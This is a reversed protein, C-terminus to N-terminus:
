DPNRAKQMAALRGWALGIALGAAHATNAVHGILGIYCAVFWALAIILYTKDMFLGSTRDYKGRMWIYGILGYVVGSMGGFNMGDSLFAMTYQAFNSGVGIVIVLLTLLRTGQRAEIMCGLQYLALMNFIIHPISLHVLIPSLLRWVQGQRIQELFVASGRESFFLLHTRADDTGLKTFVAMAVSALILAYTLVGIGYGGFKPFLSKRTHIRRRYAALEEAQEKRVRAAEAAGKRFEEANPNARFKALWEQAAALQDDSIIWVTWSGDEDREVDNAIDRGVLFDAFTRAQTEDSLQGIHRM